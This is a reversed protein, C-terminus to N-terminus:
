SSKKKLLKIKNFEKEYKPMKIQLLGTSVSKSNALSSKQSGKTVIMNKVHKKFGSDLVGITIRKKIKNKEKEIKLERTYENQHEYRSYLRPAIDGINTIHEKMKSFVPITAKNSM